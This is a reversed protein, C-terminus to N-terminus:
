IPVKMVRHRRFASVAAVFGLVFLLLLDLRVPGILGPLVGVLSLGFLIVGCGTSVVLEIGPPQRSLVGTLVMPGLLATGNFSVIVDGIKTRVGYDVSEITVDTGLRRRLLAATGPTCLYAASGPRAHDGHAHTILARDVPAWPDIFFGGAGCFLGEPTETLVMHPSHIDILTAPGILQRGGVKGDALHVQVWKAM